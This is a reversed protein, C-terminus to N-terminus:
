AADIPPPIVEAAKRAQIEEYTRVMGKIKGLTDQKVLEVLEQLTADADKFAYRLAAAVRQVQEDPVTISFALTAM